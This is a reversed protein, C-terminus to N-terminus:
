RLEGVLRQRTVVGHLTPRLDGEGALPEVPLWIHREIRANDGRDPIEFVKQLPALSRAAGLSPKSDQPPQKGADESGVGSTITVRFARRARTKVGATAPAAASRSHLALTGIDAPVMGVGITELM